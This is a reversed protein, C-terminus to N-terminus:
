KIYKRIHKYTIKVDKNWFLKWAPVAFYIVRIKGETSKICAHRFYYIVFLFAYSICCQNCM